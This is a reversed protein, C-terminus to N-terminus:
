RFDSLKVRGSMLRGWNKEWVDESRSARKNEEWVTEEGLEGSIALRVEVREAWVFRM